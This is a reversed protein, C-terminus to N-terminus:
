LRLCRDARARAHDCGECVILQRFILRPQHVGYGHQQCSTHRFQKHDALRKRLRPRCFRGLGRAASVRTPKEMCRGNSQQGGPMGILSRGEAALEGFADVCTKQGCLSDDSPQQLLM